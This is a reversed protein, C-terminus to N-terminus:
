KMWGPVTAALCFFCAQQASSLPGTFISLDCKPRWFLLERLVPLTWQAPATSHTGPATMALEPASQQCPLPGASSLNPANFARCMSQSFDSSLAKFSHCHLRLCCRDLLGNRSTSAHAKLTDICAVVTKASIFGVEQFRQTSQSCSTSFATAPIKDAQSCILTASHRSFSIRLIVCSTQEQLTVNRSFARGAENGVVFM